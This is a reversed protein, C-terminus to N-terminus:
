IRRSLAGAVGFSLELSLPQEARLNGVLVCIFVYM